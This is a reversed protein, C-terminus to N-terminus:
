ISDGLADPMQQHYNIKVIWKCYDGAANGSVRQMDIIRLQANTSTTVSSSDIQDGSRNRFTSGAATILDVNGGIDATSLDSSDGDEQILFQQNPDDAVLVYGATSSTLYAIPSKNSDYVGVVAGMVYNGAGSTARLVTGTTDLRVADGIFINLTNQTGDCYYLRSRVNGYPMNVPVLGLALNANSM